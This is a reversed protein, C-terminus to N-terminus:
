KKKRRSSKESYDTIKQAAMAQTRKEAADPDVISPDIRVEVPNVGRSFKEGRWDPNVKPSGEKVPNESHPFPPAVPMPGEKPEPAPPGHWRRDTWMAVYKNYQEHRAEPEPDNNVFEDTLPDSSDTGLRVAKWEKNERERLMSEGVQIARETRQAPTAPFVFRDYTGLNEGKQTRAVEGVYPLSREGIEKAIGLRDEPKIGLINSREPSLPKELNPTAAPIPSPNVFRYDQRIPATAKKKVRPFLPYNTSGPFPTEGRKYLSEPRVPGIMGRKGWEEVYADYSLLDPPAVYPKAKKKGM